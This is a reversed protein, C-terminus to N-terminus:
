IGIPKRVLIVTMRGAVWEREIILIKGVFSGIPVVKRVQEDEWPLVYERIRRLATEMDPVVKQSGVVLILKGAGNAYPGLQSATASAVVLLGDETVANVSGLMFDPASILKRIERAQTQRDMKLYRPRLADYQGPEQILDVIGAEQLTKSKGSHVEAGKPLRELVLKRAEDGSEVILAEINREQLKKAVRQLTEESAPTTFLELEQTM